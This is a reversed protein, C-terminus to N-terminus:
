GEAKKQRRALWADAAAAWDAAQCEGTIIERAAEYDGLRYQGFARAMPAVAMQFFLSSWRTSGVEEAPLSYLRQLDAELDEFGPSPSGFPGEGIGVLPLHTATGVRQRLIPFRSAADPSQYPDLRAPEGLFSLGLGAVKNFVDPYVHFSNSVQRYAGPWAGIAAALYEQVFSFQVANAGYAGWIMDNSRNFVTLSLYGERCSAAAGLNCPIDLSDAGLDRPEYIPLFVRRSEPDKTLMRVAEALGPRLRAGYSGYFTRGNDSFQRINKLWYALFDVDDRGALVWMAEMLHFFPHADRTEDFLVRFVPVRYVTTVPEAAEYVFGGQRTKVQRVEPSQAQIATSFFRLGKYYAENVTQAEIVRV